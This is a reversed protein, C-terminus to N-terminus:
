LSKIKQQFEKLYEAVLGDFQQHSDKSVGQHQRQATVESAIMQLRFELQRVYKGQQQQFVNEDQQRNIGAVAVQFENYLSFFVARARNHFLVIRDEM